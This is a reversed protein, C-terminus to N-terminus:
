NRSRSSRMEDTSASSTSWCSLYLLIVRDNSVASCWLRTRSIMSILYTPVSTVPAGCSEWVGRWGRGCEGGAGKWVGEVGGM